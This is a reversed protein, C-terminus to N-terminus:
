QQSLKWIFAPRRAFPIIPAVGVGLITSWVFSAAVRAIIVLLAAFETIRGDNGHRKNPEKHYEQNDKRGTGTARATWPIALHRTTLNVTVPVVLYVVGLLISSDCDFLSRCSM